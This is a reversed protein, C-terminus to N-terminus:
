IISSMGKLSSTNMSQVLRVVPPVNSIHGEGYVTLVDHCQNCYYVLREIGEARKQRNFNYMQEKQYDYDNNYIAAEVLKNIQPITFENVEEKTLLMKTNTHLIGHKSFYDAWRPQSIYGGRQKILIVDVNARKILKGTSQYIDLTEGYFTNDGEPFLGIAYGQKLSTFIRKAAGIEHKGVRKKIARALHTMGIKKSWDLFAIETAVFRINKKVYKMVVFSDWTNFHNSILIFPEQKKTIIPGEHKVTIERSMLLLVIPRIFVLVVDSFVDRISRKM